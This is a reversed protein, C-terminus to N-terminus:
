PVNRIMVQQQFDVSEGGSTFSIDIFVLTNRNESGPSLSFPTAANVQVQTALLDSNATTDVNGSAQGPNAFYRLQGNVVCFAEPNALLYFRRNISNRQWQKASFMLTSGSINIYEALSAPSSGYIDNENMAGISVWEPVGFETAPDGYLVQVSGSAPALNAADPVSGSYIGGGAIPMFRVCNGGNTIQVSYPLAGRLQRSMRELAARGTNVLLARTRTAEYNQTSSVVFQAGMVALISLVVLVVILEILTFGRHGAGSKQLGLARM